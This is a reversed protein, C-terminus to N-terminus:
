DSPNWQQQLADLPSCNKIKMHKNLSSIQTFRRGCGKCEFRKEGTHVPLHTKLASMHRYEKGCYNCVVNGLTSHKGAAAWSDDQHDIDGMAEDYHELDGYGADISTDIYVIDQGVGDFKDFAGEKEEPQESRSQDLDEAVKSIEQKVTVLEPLHYSTSPARTSSGEESIRISTQITRQKKMPIPNTDLGPVMSIPQTIKPSSAAHVENKLSSQDSLGKIDLAQATSLVNVLESEQFLGFGTLDCSRLNNEEVLRFKLRERICTSCCCTLIAPILM